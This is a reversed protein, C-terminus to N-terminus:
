MDSNTAHPIFVIAIGANTASCNNQLLKSLHSLMLKEFHQQVFVVKAKFRRTTSGNKFVITWLFGIAFRVFLLLSDVQVDKHIAMIILCNLVM